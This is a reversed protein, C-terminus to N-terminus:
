HSVPAMGGKRMVVKGYLVTLVSDGLIGVGFLILINSFSPAWYGGQYLLYAIGYVGLNTLISQYALYQTRGLGIFLTDVLLNMALLMYPGLLFTIAQRSFAIMEPDDSFISLISGLLPLPALWLLLLATGLGLGTRLVKKIAVYDMATNAILAKMTEALANVPLLAFSWFLHMALYYGGIQKPGLANILQLIMFFYATNRILSELVVWQSVKRFLHYDALSPLSFYKKLPMRFVSQLFYISALLIVLETFLNSFAVGIVGLSLSFSYGGFFWSDFTVSLMLKLALLKLLFGGKRLSELVIVLGTNFISLCLAGTKVRLFDITAARLTESTGTQEIFFPMGALLLLVIPALVLCMIVLSAKMRRFGEERGQRWQSGVFFFIPLVLAEQLVEIAVQVFQWQAVIALNNEVPPTNGILYLSYSKYISPIFFFLLISFFLGWDWHGPNVTNTKEM